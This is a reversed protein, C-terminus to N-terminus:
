RSSRAALSHPHAALPQKRRKRRLSEHSVSITPDEAPLPHFLNQWFAEEDWNNASWALDADSFVPAVPPM